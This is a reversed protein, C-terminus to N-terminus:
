NHEPVEPVSIIMQDRAPGLTDFGGEPFLAGHPYPVYLYGEEIANELEGKTLKFLEPHEDETIHIVIFIAASKM